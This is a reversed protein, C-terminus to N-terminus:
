SKTTTSLHDLKTIEHLTLVVKQLRFLTEPTMAPMPGFKHYNLSLNKRGHRLVGM